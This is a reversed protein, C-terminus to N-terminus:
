RRRDGRSVRWRCDHRRGVGVVPPTFNLEGIETEGIEFDDERGQEEAARSILEDFCGEAADSAMGQAFEAIADEADSESALVTAESSAEQSAVTEEAALYQAIDCPFTSLTRSKM